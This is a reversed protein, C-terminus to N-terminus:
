AARAMAVRPRITKLARQEIRAIKQVYTGKERAVQTLTAGDRYLRRLVHQEDAPLEVVAERLKERRQRDRMDEIQQAPLVFEAPKEEDALDAHAQRREKRLFDRMANEIAQRSFQIVTRGGARELEILKRYGVSQLDEFLHWASRDKAVGRAISRIQALQLSIPDHGQDPSFANQSAQTAM